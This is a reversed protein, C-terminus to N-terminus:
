QDVENNEAKDMMAIAKQAGITQKTINFISHKLNAMTKKYLQKLNLIEEPNSNGHEGYCTLDEIFDELAARIKITHDETSGSLSMALNCLVRPIVHSDAQSEWVNNGLHVISSASRLNTKRVCQNEERTLIDKSFLGILEVFDSRGVIKKIEEKSIHDYLYPMNEQFVIPCTVTINNNINITNNTINNNNNINNTNNTNNINNTNNNNNNNTTNTNIVTCLTGLAAKCVKIHRPINNKQTFLKLCYKCQLPNILGQCKEFHKLMTCRKAYVRECKECQKDNASPLIVKTSPLIVKTSPLIVKTSPFIVKTSPLIVKTSPHKTVM